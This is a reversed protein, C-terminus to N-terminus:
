PLKTYRRDPKSLKLSIRPLNWVPYYLLTALLQNPDSYTSSQGRREKKRVVVMLDRRGRRRRAPPAAAWDEREKVPGRGVWGELENANGEVVKFVERARVVAETVIVVEMREFPTRVWTEVTTGVMKLRVTVREGVAVDEEAVVLAVAEAEAEGAGIIRTRRREAKGCKGERM